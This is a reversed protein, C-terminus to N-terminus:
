REYIHDINDGDDHETDLVAKVVTIGVAVPIPHGTHKGYGVGLNTGV